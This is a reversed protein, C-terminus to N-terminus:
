VCKIYIPRMQLSTRNRFLGRFRKMSSLCRKTLSNYSVYGYGLARGQRFSQGGQTIYGVPKPRPKFDTYLLPTSRPSSSNQQTTVTTTSIPAMTMQTKKKIILDPQEYLYILAGHEPIGKSGSLEVRVRILCTSLFSPSYSSLQDLPSRAVWISLSSPSADPVISVLQDFPIRFPSDIELSKYNIRKASPRRLHDNRLLEMSHETEMQYSKTDIYDDPFYPIGNEFAHHQMDRLSCAHAGAYIFSKWFGMGWGSPVIMVWGQEFCEQRWLLIPIRADIESVPLRYIRGRRQRERERRLNLQKESLQHRRLRNRYSEDWIDSMATASADFTFEISDGDPPPPPHSSTRIRLKNPFLLRPDIVKLSLVAQHPFHSPTFNWTRWTRWLDGAGESPIVDLVDRLIRHAKRGFLDFRLLDRHDHRRLVVRSRVLDDHPHVSSLEHEISEALEDIALPHVWIWIMRRHRKMSAHTARWLLDVPCIAGQPFQDPHYFMCRAVRTGYRYKSHGPHDYNSLREQPVFRTLLDMLQDEDGVLEVLDMYSSDHIVCENISARYLFRQNKDNPYIAVKCHGNWKLEMKMRKGHWIHTELWQCRGHRHMRRLYEHKKLSTGSHIQCIKPHRRTGSKSAYSYRRLRKRRRQEFEKAAASSAITTSPTSTTSTIPTTKRDITPPTIPATNTSMVIKEVERIAQERLESWKRPIRKVYHSAARRRLHRPLMQFARRNGTMTRVQKELYELEKLRSSAFPLVEIMDRSTSENDLKRALEQRNDKEM